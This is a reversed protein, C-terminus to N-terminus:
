EIEKKIKLMAYALAARSNMSQSLKDRPLQLKTLKSQVKAINDQIIKHEKDIKRKNILDHIGRKLMEREFEHSSVLIDGEEISKGDEMKKTSKLVRMELSEDVADLNNM